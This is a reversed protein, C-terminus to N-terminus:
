GNVGVDSSENYMNIDNWSILDPRWSFKYGDSVVTMVNSYVMNEVSHKLDRILYTGSLMKSTKREQASRTPYEIWVMRGARKYVGEGNTQLNLTIMDSFTFSQKTYLKGDLLENAQRIYKDDEINTGTILEDTNPYIFTEKVTRYASGLYKTSLPLKLSLHNHKYGDIQKDNSIVQCSDYDFGVFMNRGLGVNGYKIIDFTKGVTIDTIRDPNHANTSTTTLKFPV